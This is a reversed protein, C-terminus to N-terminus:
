KESIVADNYYIVTKIQKGTADYYTFTGHKAGVVWHEEHEIKGDDYYFKFVGDKDGWYYNEEAKLNGNSYYYKQPGMLNGSQYNEDEFIKGSPTYVARKGEYSGNVYNSEFSKVGNSYYCIVAGTGKEIPTATVQQGDKGIYSYAIIVGNHYWSISYILDDEFYSIKEGEIGGDLYEGQRRIHGNEYYEKFPGNETDDFYTETLSPKSNAYYKEYPGNLSGISYNTLSQVAGNEYYTTLKGDHNDSLYNGESYLKGDFYYVKQVGDINGALYTRDMKLQGNSYKDKFSGNGKDSLYTYTLNTGNTDYVWAKDFYGLDNHFEETSLRGNVDYYDAYGSIENNLYYIHSTITGRSNYYYWDGAKEGLIYWGTSRLQGNEYYEHYLSNPMDSSYEVSDKIKGDEFYDIRMGNLGQQEITKDHKLKVKKDSGSASVLLTDRDYHEITTLAGTVSYFKWVGRRQGNLIEGENMKIGNPYFNVVPLKGNVAATESITKGTKDYYTIHLLDGNKYEFESYKVGDEDYLVDKGDLEGDKTYNMEEQKKGNRYYSTWKDITKGDKGYTGEKRLSGDKFYFKWPGTAYDDKYEGQDEIKGNEWYDTLTGNKKADKYISSLCLQGNLYYQKQEGDLGADSYNVAYQQKGNSFNIAYPGAPKENVYTGHSTLIGSSNYAWVEGNLKDNKYTYKDQPAGNKYWTESLGDRKGDKYNTREKMTGDYYFWVWQGERNGNENFMGKAQTTGTYQNYITWDGITKEKANEEGEAELLQNSYYILTLTKKVGNVTVERKNRKEALTKGAWTTFEEIKKKQKSIEKQLDDNGVSGMIFYIYQVFFDKKQMETFFPVYNEMWFNNTNPTYTLKEMFLQCQKMVDFAVKTQSKYNESMAVKSKIDLDLEDFAGDNYKEPDVVTAKNYDYNGKVVQEILQVTSLSRSSTPELILFFQLSLLAPIMRGQELCCKGLYYHSSAHFVNLKISREFCAIASDYQHSKYYALGISYPLLYVAPYRPIATDALLRIAEKNKDMDVYANALFKYFDCNYETNLALGKRCLGVAISDEGGSIRSIAEEYVALVYNTDNRSIQEYLQSAADFQGSDALSMGTEIFSYSDILSINKQASINKGIVVFILLSIFFTVNIKIRIYDV